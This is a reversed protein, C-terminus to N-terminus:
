KTEGKLRKAREDMMADAIDAAANAFVASRLAEMTLITDAPQYALMGTMARGAYEDWLRQKYSPNGCVQKFTGPRHDYTSSGCAYVTRPTEADVEPAACAPCKNGEGILNGDAPPIPSGAAPNSAVSELITKKPEMPTEKNPNTACTKVESEPQAGTPPLSQFAAREEPTTPRRLTWNHDVQHSWSIPLWKSSIYFECPVKTLTTYEPVGIQKATLREPNRLPDNIGFPDNQTTM